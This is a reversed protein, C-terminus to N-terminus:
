YLSYLTNNGALVIILRRGNSVPAKLAAGSWDDWAYSTRQSIHIYTEDAYVIPRGEERYATVARLYQVRLSQIDHRDM